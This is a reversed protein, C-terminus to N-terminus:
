CLVVACLLVAYIRCSVLRTPMVHVYNITKVFPKIKCRKEMRKKGMSRTVKKPYRDIGAVINVFLSCRRYSCSNACLTRVSISKGTCHGFKKEGSGEEATSMVVAKRGAYRGALVV